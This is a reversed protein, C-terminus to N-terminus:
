KTNSAKKVISTPKAIAPANKEVSRSLMADIISLRLSKCRGDLWHRDM